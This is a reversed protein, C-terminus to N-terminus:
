NDLVQHALSTSPLAPPQLVKAFHSQWAQRTCCPACAGHAEPLPVRSPQGQLIIYGLPPPCHHKRHHPSLFQLLDYRDSSLSTGQWLGLSDRYRSHHLPLLPQNLNMRSLLSAVLYLLPLGSPPLSLLLFLPSNKSFSCRARALTLPSAGACLQELTSTTLCSDKNAVPGNTAQWSTPPLRFLICSPLRFLPSM